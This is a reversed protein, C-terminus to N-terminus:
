REGYAIRMRIAPLLDRTVCRTCVLTLSAVALFNVAFAIRRPNLSDEYTRRSM